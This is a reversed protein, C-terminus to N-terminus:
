KSKDVQETTSESGNSIPRIAMADGTTSPLIPPMSWMSPMTPTPELPSSCKAKVANLWTTRYFFTEQPFNGPMKKVQATLEGAADLQGPWAFGTANGNRFFRQDLREYLDKDYRRRDLIDSMATFASSPRTNRLPRDPNWAPDLAGAWALLGLGLKM